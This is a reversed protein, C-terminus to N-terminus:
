TYKWDSGYLERKLEDTYDFFKVTGTKFIHREVLIDEDFLDKTLLEGDENFTKSWGHRLDDSFNEELKKNGNRYYETEQFEKKGYYYYGSYYLEGSDLYHKACGYEVGDEYGIESKLIGKDNYEKVLMPFENASYFEEKAIIKNEHYYSKIEICDEIQRPRLIGYVYDSFEKITNIEKIDEDRIVISLGEEILIPILLMRAFHETLGLKDPKDVEDLKEIPVNFKNATNIRCLTLIDETEAESKDLHLIRLIFEKMSRYLLEKTITIDIDINAFFLQAFFVERNDENISERFTNVNNNEM